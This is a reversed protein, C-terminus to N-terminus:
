LLAESKPSLPSHCRPLHLAALARRAPQEGRRGRQFRRHRGVTFDGHSRWVGVRVAGGLAGFLPPVSLQAGAGVAVDPACAATEWISKANEDLSAQWGTVDLGEALAVDDPVSALFYGLHRAFIGKFLIGDGGPSGGYLNELPLATPENM